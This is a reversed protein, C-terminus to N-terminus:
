EIKGGFGDESLRKGSYLASPQEAPLSASPPPPSLILSVASLLKVAADETPDFTVPANCRAYHSM